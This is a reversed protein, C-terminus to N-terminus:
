HKGNKGNLSVPAEAVVVTGDTKSSRVAFTGGIRELRERNGLLGLGRGERTLNVEKRSFGVGNDHIRVRIRGAPYQIRIRVANANAHRVINNVSEKLVRAIERLVANAVRVDSREESWSLTCHAARLMSEAYSRANELPGIGRELNRLGYALSRAGEVTSRAAEEM